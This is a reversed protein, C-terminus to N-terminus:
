PKGGIGAQRQRLPALALGLEGAGTAALRWQREAADAIDILIEAVGSQGRGNAGAATVYLKWIAGIGERALMRFALKQAFTERTMPLTPAQRM